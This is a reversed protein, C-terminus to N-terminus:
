DVLKTYNKFGAVRILNVISEYDNQNSSFVVHMNQPIIPYVVVGIFYRTLLKAIEENQIATDKILLISNYLERCYVVEDDKINEVPTNKSGINHANMFNIDFKRDCERDNYTKSGHVPELQNPIYLAFNLKIERESLTQTDFLVIVEIGLEKGVEDIFNAINKEDGPIVCPYSTYEQRFAMQNLLGDIIKRM